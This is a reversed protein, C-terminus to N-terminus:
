KIKGTNDLSFVQSISLVFISYNHCSYLAQTASVSGLPASWYHAVAVVIGVTDSCSQSHVIGVQQKLSLKVLFNKLFKALPGNYM